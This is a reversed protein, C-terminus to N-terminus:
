KIYHMEVRRNKAQGEKTTNDAIPNSEGYYHTEIRSADVGNAVLFDKVSQVRNRSLEMNYEESGNNDTHGNLRIKLDERMLMMNTLSELEGFSKRRIIAKDNEFELTKAALDLVREAEEDTIAKKIPSEMYVTDVREVILTDVKYEVKVITDTKLKPIDALQDDPVTRQNKCLKLGIIVEHSGSSYSAINRMPTEYAYGVFFLDQINVGVRGILGVGSRFGLGGTIFNKYNLDTNVDFQNVNGIGKYLISPKLSLNDNLKFRYGLLGILHRRLGYGNLGSYGFNSFSELVQKSSASFELGKFQYLLGVETNVTSGSQSGGNVIVDNNDFAIAGDTNVRFQDYGASLGFRLNHANAITFGYSVSGSAAVQQLMGIKDVLVNAGVGWSKGLRTNASLLSTVPAGSVKVWQNLHSFFIETCGKEGAYAPNLSYRNYNYVNTQPTQQAFGNLAIFIMVGSFSYKLTKKM